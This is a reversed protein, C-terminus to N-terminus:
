IGPIVHDEDEYDDDDTSGEGNVLSAKKKRKRVETRFTKTTLATLCSFYL